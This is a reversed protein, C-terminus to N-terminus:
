VGAIAALLGTLALTLTADRRPWGAAAAVAALALGCAGGQLASVWKVRTLARALFANVRALEPWALDPRALDGRRVDPQM